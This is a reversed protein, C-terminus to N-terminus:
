SATKLRAEPPPGSFSRANALAPIRGRVLASQEPDIDAVIFGPETGAEALIKGWPDVIMSHGYTDRGDEHHGGQAGAVIFSGTEIARARILVHWHAEGTTKTFAAPIAIVTSGSRALTHYLNPFRVDYCVSLGLRGWPLDAVTAANGPRYLRSERYSEGGALDVDFMHIKDYRALIGGDPGILFSRNAVAAQGPSSAPAALKIAMSGIHVHIGLKEALSRFRKLSPDTEEFDIRALLRERDKDLITTMEPTLVYEAGDAAAARILREADAVNAKVDIGSNMQVTAARFVTM